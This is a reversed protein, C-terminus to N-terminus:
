EGPNQVKLVMQGESDSTESSWRLGTCKQVKQSATTMRIMGRRQAGPRPSARPLIGCQPFGGDVERGRQREAERGRQREAERGRQREAERGGWREVETRGSALVRV